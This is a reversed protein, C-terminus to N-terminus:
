HVLHQQNLVWQLQGLVVSRDYATPNMALYTSLDDVARNWEGLALSITGRDRYEIPQEPDFRLILECYELAAGIAGANKHLAKLNRLVRVFVQRGEVTRLFEDRFELTGGSVEHLLDACSREDRVTGFFPDVYAGPVDVAKLLFHYPFGVGRVDIGVRKGIEMFLVSLAIPIGTRRQLVESLSTNRPDYYHDSNGRFGLERMGAVFQEVRSREDHGRDVRSQVKVSLEDIRDRCEEVDVQPDLARSLILMAQLVDVDASKALEHLADRDRDPIVPTM